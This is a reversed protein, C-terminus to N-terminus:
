PEIKRYFYLSHDPLSGPDRIKVLDKLVLDPRLYGLELYMNGGTAGIRNDYTYVNGSKYAAFNMYRSDANGLDQLTKFPAPSIWYECDAAQDYVSEFDLQLFGNSSDTSWAYTYGADELLRAAYNKGGPMFWADGYLSGSFVRPSSVKEKKVTMLYAAEIAKFISDAEAYKGFLLGTFKIWEARGLPHEELFDTNLLVPIGLEKLRDIAGGKQMAYGMIADPALSLVVEINLQEVNGIDRVKGEDIRKRTVPSSIYNTHPFGTLKDGLSLYELLPIHSTSTCIISNLPVKVPQVDQEGLPMYVKDHLLYQVPKEAGPFPEIITLLIGNEVRSIDFGTAYQLRYSNHKGTTVGTETVKSTESCSFVLLFFLPLYRM